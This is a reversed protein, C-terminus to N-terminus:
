SASTPPVRKLLDSEKLKLAFQAAAEQNPQVAHLHMLAIEKGAALKAQFSASVQNNGQQYNIAMPTKANKGAFVEMVAANGSTQAVWAFNQDKRKPDAVSQATNIGYNMSSSLLVNLNQEQGTANKFV